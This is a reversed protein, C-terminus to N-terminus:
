QKRHTQQQKSFWLVGVGMGATCENVTDAPSCSERERARALWGICSHNNKGDMNYTWITALRRQARSTGFSCSMSKGKELAQRKERTKKKHRKRIWTKSHNTWLEGVRESEKECVCVNKRERGYTRIHASSCLCFVEFNRTHGDRMVQSKQIQHTHKEKKIQIWPM